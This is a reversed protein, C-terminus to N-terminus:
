YSLTVKNHQIIGYEKITTFYEVAIYNYIVAIIANGRTAIIVPYMKLGVITSYSHAIAIWM